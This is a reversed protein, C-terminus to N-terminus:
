AVGLSTRARAALAIDLAPWHTRDSGANQAQFIMRQHGALPAKDIINRCRANRDGSEHATRMRVGQDTADVAARCACHRTDDRHEREIIEGAYQLLPAHVPNGIGAGIKAPAPREREGVAFDGKNALRYGNHHGAVAINGFVCGRQNFDIVLCDRRCDIAAGLTRWRHAAFEDRVPDDGIGDAIAVDFHGERPSRM